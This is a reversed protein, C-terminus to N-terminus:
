KVVGRQRLKTLDVPNKTISVFFKVATVISTVLASGLRISIRCDFVISSDGNFAPSIFIEKRKIRIFLDLASVIPFVVACAGGYTMATQAPDDGGISLNVKLLDIRIKNKFKVFTKKADDKFREFLELFAKIQSLSLRQAQKKETKAQGKEKAKIRYSIFLYKVKFDFKDSYSVFVKVRSLLLFVILVAIAIIVIIHIPM